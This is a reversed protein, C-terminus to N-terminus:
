AFAQVSGEPASPGTPLHLEVFSQYLWQWSLRSVLCLLCSRVGLGVIGIQQLLSRRLRLM